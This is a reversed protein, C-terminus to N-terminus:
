PGGASGREPVIAGKAREFDQGVGKFSEVQTDSLWAITIDRAFVGPAVKFLADVPANWLQPALGTLVGNWILKHSSVSASADAKHMEILLEVFATATGRKNDRYLARLKKHFDETGATLTPKKDAVTAFTGPHAGLDIVGNAVVQWIVRNTPSRLAHHLALWDLGDQVTNLRKHDLAGAVVEKIMDTPIWEHMNSDLARFRDKIYDRSGQQHDWLWCFRRWTIGGAVRERVMSRLFPLLKMSHVVAKLDPDPRQKPLGDWKGYGPGLAVVYTMDGVADVVAQGATSSM